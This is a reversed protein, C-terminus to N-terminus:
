GSGNAYRRGDRRLGANQISERPHVTSQKSGVSRANCDICESKSERHAALATPDTAFPGVEPQITDSSQIRPPRRPGRTEMTKDLVESTM